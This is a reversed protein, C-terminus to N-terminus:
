LSNSVSFDLLDIIFIRTDLIALKSDDPSFSLAPQQRPFNDINIRYTLEKVDNSIVLWEGVWRVSWCRDNSYIVDQEKLQAQFFIELNKEEINLLDEETTGNILIDSELGGPYNNAIFKNDVEFITPLKNVYASYVLQPQSPSCAKWNKIASCSLVLRKHGRKKLIDLKVLTYDCPRSNDFHCESTLSSKLM